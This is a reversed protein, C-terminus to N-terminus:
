PKRGSANRREQIPNRQRASVPGRESAGSSAGALGGAAAGTVGSIRGAIADSEAATRAKWGGDAQAGIRSSKYNRIYQRRREMGQRTRFSEGAGATGINEGSQAQGYGSSHLFDARGERKTAAKIVAKLTKNNTSGATSGNDM